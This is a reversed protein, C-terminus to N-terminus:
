DENPLLITIVPELTDGPGIVAKLKIEKSKGKKTVILPFLIQSGSSKRAAVTFMWLIDWLRGDQSEGRAEGAKDPTVVNVWVASTVAVPFKIGAEKGMKSVDILDGSELLDKRTIAFIVEGFMSDDGVTKENIILQPQKKSIMKAKESNFNMKADGQANKL